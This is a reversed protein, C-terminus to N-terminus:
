GQGRKPPPPVTDDDSTDSNSEVAVTGPKPVNPLPAGTDQFAESVFQRIERLSRHCLM